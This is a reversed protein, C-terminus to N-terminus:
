KSIGPEDILLINLTLLKKYLTHWEQCVKEIWIAVCKNQTYINYQIFIM